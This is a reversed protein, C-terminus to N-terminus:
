RIVTTASFQVLERLLIDAAPYPKFAKVSKSESYTTSEELPGVKEMKSVVQLGREDVTPDPALPGSLARLAYEATAKQLKIPMGIDVDCVMRPFELAQDDDVKDGKFLFRNNIYDTAKIIAAEKVAQVGTWAAIARDAFYADVFAVAAFANADVVITGDEVIFAM